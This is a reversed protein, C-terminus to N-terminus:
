QGQARKAADESVGTISSEGNQSHGKPTVAAPQRGGTPDLGTAVQEQDAACRDYGAQTVNEFQKTQAALASFKEFNTKAQAIDRNARNQFSNADNLVDATESIESPCIRQIYNDGQDEQVMLDISSHFPSYFTEKVGELTQQFQLFNTACNESIGNLQRNMAANERLAVCSEASAVKAALASAKSALTQCKTSDMEMQEEFRAQIKRELNLQSQLGQNASRIQECALAPLSFITMALALLGCHM